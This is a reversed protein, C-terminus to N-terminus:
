KFPAIKYRKESTEMWDVEKFPVSRWGGKDIDYVHIIGSKQMLKLIKAMNVNKPHDAKPIKNFDLTCKMIRITGDKKIFKVTAEGADYLTQWFKVANRILEEAM